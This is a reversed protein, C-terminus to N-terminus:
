VNKNFRFFFCCGREAYLCGKCRKGEKKGYISILQKYQHVAIRDGKQKDAGEPIIVTNGFLDKM